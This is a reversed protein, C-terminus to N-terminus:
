TMPPITLVEGPTVWDHLRHVRPIDRHKDVVRRQQRRVGCGVSGSKQAVDEHREKSPRAPGPRAGPGVPAGLEVAGEILGTALEAQAVGARLRTMGPGVAENLAQLARDQLLVPADGESASVEGTARRQLPRESLEHAVVVVLPRMLAVPEAAPCRGREDPAGDLCSTM